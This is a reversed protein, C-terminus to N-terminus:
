AASRPMVGLPLYVQDTGFRAALGTAPDADTFSTTIVDARLRERVESLNLHNTANSLTSLSLTKCTLLSLLTATILFYRLLKM